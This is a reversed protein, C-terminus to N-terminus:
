RTPSFNNIQQRVSLSAVFKYARGDAVGIVPYGRSQTNVGVFTFERRSNGVSFPAGLKGDQIGYAKGCGRLYTAAWKQVRARAQATGNIWIDPVQDTFGAIPATM